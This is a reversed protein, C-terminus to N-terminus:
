YCAPKGCVLLFGFYNSAMPGLWLSTEGPTIQSSGGDWYFDGGYQGYKGHTSGSSSLAMPPIAAGVIELGAPATAQWVAGQGQSYLAPADM